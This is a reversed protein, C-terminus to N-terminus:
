KSIRFDHANVFDSSTKSSLTTEKGAEITEIYVNVTTLEKGEKDLVTIKIFEDGAKSRGTNKVKATIYSEGDKSTLAINSFELSGLTKTKKLEESTNLNTGDEQKEVFEQVQTGAVEGEPEDEKQVGKVVLLILIIALMVGIMIIIQKKESQTM